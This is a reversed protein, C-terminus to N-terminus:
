IRKQLGEPAESIGVFDDAVMFGSVTDEGVKVGRNAAEIEIIMYNILVKSLTSSLARRQTVGQFIDVYKSKEGKLVM